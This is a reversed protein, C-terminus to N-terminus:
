ELIRRADDRELFDALMVALWRLSARMRNWTPRVKQVVDSLIASVLERHEQPIYEAACRWFSELDESSWRCSLYEPTTWTRSLRLYERLEPSADPQWARDDAGWLVVAPLNVVFRVDAVPPPPEPAQVRPRAPPEGGCGALVLIGVLM